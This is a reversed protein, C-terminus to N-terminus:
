LHSRLSIKQGFTSMPYLKTLIEYIDKAKNLEAEFLILRDKISEILIREERVDDEFYKNWDKTNSKDPEGIKKKAKSM